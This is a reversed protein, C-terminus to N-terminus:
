CIYPQVHLYGRGLASCGAATVAACSLLLLKFSM